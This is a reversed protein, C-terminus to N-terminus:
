PENVQVSAALVKTIQDGLEELHAKTYADLEVGMNELVRGIRGQVEKLHARALSRADAPAPATSSSELFSDGGARTGLTLRALRRIHERQLNRRVTSIAIKEGKKPRKDAEPLESWVSRTLSEFIEPMRVQDTDKPVRLEANQVKALVEGDLFRGLVLRQIALIQDLLRVPERGFSYQGWHSFQEPALRNLLDPSFDFAKDALVHEEAFRLAERQKEAPIPEFPLRANPDGRHDRHSYEAGIYQVALYTASSLEGLLHGFAIRARQWGEGEAVVKEALGDLNDRVFRARQQAFDMPDGLDYANIRPDPNSSLDEDTGYDHGSEALKAAIKALEPGEDGKIPSYAYEIVWYDYPGITTSFYDGQKEGKLAFNAPLYDMVSGSMGRAQTVEPNSTEKLGLMTSAKFNHRLGLTHGVEHMVVEKIAQGVYERPVKGGDAKGQSQMVAALLGMQRSIGTGLMCGDACVRDRRWERAVADELSRGPEADLAALQVRAREVMQSMQPEAQALLPVDAAHLKLWAQRQGRALLELGQPIGITELYDARWYRVMSEDFIIDADLIQGTKPNTRSPGMAFASSTTIWRFTNYRIDEPDFEDGSQQDRVQIADLFGIKEFAKNWELIGAKVYPRYERPVTKEIWFIIPEKPPSKEAAEDSKELKWRTVYRQFATRDLDNSFDKVVSLFHGVRDDAMRPKYSGESPLASLGYHVVVQAGRADPVAPDGSFAGGRMPAVASVEIELNEPFAKVKAWTSRARDPAMGLNPLDTMFLDALDVLVFRGVPENREAKIPLSAIISDTYSIRVADAQPSGGAAKFYVNRRVVLVRDAVRRFSLVWQDGFNLTGGGLLARGTGRAIAIPCIYEKEYKGPGLELFLRQEKEDYYLDLLGEHKTTGKTVTAYEPLKKDTDKPPDEARTGQGALALM